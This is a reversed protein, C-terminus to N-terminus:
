EPTDVIFPSAFGIESRSFFSYCCLVAPVIEPACVTERGERIEERAHHAVHVPFFLFPPSLLLRCTCDSRRRQEAIAGLVPGTLPPRLGGRRQLGGAVVTSRRSPTTSSRPSSDGCLGTWHHIEDHVTSM